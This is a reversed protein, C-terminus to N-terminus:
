ATVALAAAEAAIDSLVMDALMDGLRQDAASVYRRGEGRRKSAAFRGQLRQAAETYAAAAEAKTAYYGLVRQKGNSCIAARWPRIRLRSDLYVGKVGHRSWSRTNRCNESRSAHRLNAFRDDDKVGNKHDIEREPWAGKVHLWALRARKYLRGDVSVYVYGRGNPSGAESGASMRPRDARWTMRGTKPDYDLLERLREATLPPKNAPAM